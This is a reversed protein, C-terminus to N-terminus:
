PQILDIAHYKSAREPWIIYPKGNGGYRSAAFAAYLETRIKVFSDYRIQKAVKGAPEKGEAHSIIIFLTDKFERRLAKYQSYNMGSYQISDIVVIHPAKPKRLREVLEEISEDDLLIFKRRVEMMGVRQLALKISQSNGEEMSNYAVRGFQTLYKCLQMVFTTKGSASSGWVIWSGYLEPNGILDEFAGKFPMLKRKKSIVQHVSFVKGM